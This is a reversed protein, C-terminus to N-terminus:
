RGDVLLSRVKAFKLIFRAIVIYSAFVLIFWLYRRLGGFRFRIYFLAFRFTSLLVLSFRFIFVTPIWDVIRFTASGIFCLFCFRAVVNQIGPTEQFCVCAERPRAQAFLGCVLLYLLVTLDNKSQQSCEHRMFKHLQQQAVAADMSTQRTELQVVCQTQIKGALAIVCAVTFACHSSKTFAYRLRLLLLLEGGRCLSSM